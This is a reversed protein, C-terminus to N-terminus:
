YAVLMRFRHLFQVDINTENQVSIVPLEGEGVWQNPKIDMFYTWPVAYSEVRSWTDGSSELSVDRYPVIREWWWKENAARTVDDFSVAGSAQLYGPVVPFQTQQDQFGPWARLFVAGQSPAVSGPSPVLVTWYGVIRLIKYARPQTEIKGEIDVVDGWQDFSVLPREQRSNALISPSNRGYDQCPIWDMAM